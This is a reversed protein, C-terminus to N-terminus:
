SIYEFQVRTGVGCLLEYSITTAAQAVEDIPLGEGWLIVEDGVQANPVTDLNISIMDMSVRGVLTAMRGNVRLPTGNTAHRPYGDGYGIAAVGIRTDAPCRWDAGYGIADGQKCAKIAILKTSLTM